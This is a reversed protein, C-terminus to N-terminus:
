EHTPEELQYYGQYPYDPWITIELVDTIHQKLAPVTTVITHYFIARAELLTLDLYETAGDEISESWTTTDWEEEETDMYKKRLALRLFEQMSGVKHIMAWGAFCMATNCFAPQHAEEPPAVWAHMDFHKGEHHTFDDEILAVTGVIRDLNAM